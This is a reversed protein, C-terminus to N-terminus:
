KLCLAGAGDPWGADPCGRALDILRTADRRRYGGPDAFLLAGGFGPRHDGSHGRALVVCRAGCAAGRRVLAISGVYMMFTAVLAGILILREPYQFVLGVSPFTLISVSLAIGIVSRGRHQVEPDPNPITFLSQVWVRQSM